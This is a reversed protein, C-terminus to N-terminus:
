KRLISNFFGEDSHQSLWSKVKSNKFTEQFGKKIFQKVPSRLVKQRKAWLMLMMATNHIRFSKTWIRIWSKLDKRIRIRSKLCHWSFINAFHECLAVAALSEFCKVNKKLFYRLCTIWHQPDPNVSVIGCWQIRIWSKLPVTRGSQIQMVTTDNSLGKFSCWGSYTKLKKNKIKFIQYSNLTRLREM